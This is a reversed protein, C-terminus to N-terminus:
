VKIAAGLSGALNSLNCLTEWFTEFCNFGIVLRLDLCAIFGSSDEFGHLIPM